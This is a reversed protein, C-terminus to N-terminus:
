VSILPIVTNFLWATSINSPLFHWGARSIQFNLFKTDRERDRHWIDFGIVPQSSGLYLSGCQHISYKGLFNNM